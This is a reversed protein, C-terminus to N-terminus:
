GDAVGSTAEPLWLTEEDVQYLEALAKVVQPDVYRRTGAEMRSIFSPHVFAHRAATTRALDAALRAARLAESNVQRGDTKKM